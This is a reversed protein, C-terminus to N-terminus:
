QVRFTTVLNKVQAYKDDIEKDSFLKCSAEADARQAVPLLMSGIRATCIAHQEMKKASILSDISADIGDLGATVSAGAIAAASLFTPLNFM